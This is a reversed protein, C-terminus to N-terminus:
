IPLLRGSLGLTTAHQPPKEGWFRESFRSHAKGRLNGRGVWRGVMMPRPRRRRRRRRRRHFFKGLADLGWGGSPISTDDIVPPPGDVLFDPDTLLDCM